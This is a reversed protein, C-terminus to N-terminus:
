MIAFMQRVNRTAKCQKITPYLRLSIFYKLEGTTDNYQYFQLAQVEDVQLDQGADESYGNWHLGCHLHYVDGGVISCLYHCV